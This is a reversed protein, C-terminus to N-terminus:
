HASSKEELIELVPRPTDRTNPPLVPYGVKPQKGTLTMLFATIKQIDEDSLQIGLQASGMIGVAQDLSWVKGSHFYPPTLQIDRLTPVKFVYKDSVTDTVMFRGKDEPPLIDAGPKEVLGFPFYGNGGLNVGNHCAACGKEMFLNLGEKEEDNLASQDGKLYQDFRSDPTLLTAEFAEIAKVANDMSLPEKDGPFAKKFLDVYAPMSNLTKTVMEPSSSMEVSAAIPGRAQEALDKARGDWFQAVNFVSNLVTPANRPGRQWAHGVSTEQLDVGGTGLNHCTNCSILNSASLRPEFFLMKGLEVKEPTITNNELEPPSEPIPKFMSKSKNLLDDQSQAYTVSFGLIVALLCLGKKQM